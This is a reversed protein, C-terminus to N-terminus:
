LHKLTETGSGYRIEPNKEDRVAVHFQTQSLILLSNGDINVDVCNQTLTHFKM